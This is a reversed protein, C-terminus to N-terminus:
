KGEKENYAMLSKAIDYHGMSALHSAARATGIREIVAGSKALGNKIKGTALSWGVILDQLFTKTNLVLATM